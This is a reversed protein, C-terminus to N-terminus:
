LAGRARRPRRPVGLPGQGLDLLGPQGLDVLHPGIHFRSQTLGLQAMLRDVTQGGFGQLQCVACAEVVGGVAEQGNFAQLTDYQEALLLVYLEQLERDDEVLLITERPAPKADLAATM